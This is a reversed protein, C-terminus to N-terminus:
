CPAGGAARRLPASWPACAALEVGVGDGGVEAADPTRVGDPASAPECPATCSRRPRRPARPRPRRGRRAPPAALLPLAVVELLELPRGVLQGEEGVADVEAREVVEGVAARAPRPMLGAWRRRGACGPARRRRGARRGCADLDDHAAAGAADALGRGRGREASRAASRPRSTTTSVMSGARRSACDIPSVSSSLSGRGTSPRRRRGAREGRHHEVHLPREVLDDLGVGVGLAGGRDERVGEVLRQRAREGARLLVHRHLLEALQARRASASRGHSRMTTSVGGDRDASSKRSAGRRSPDNRSPRKMRRSAAGASPRRGRRAELHEDAPKPINVPTSVCPSRRGPARRRASRRRRRDVRHEAPEALPGLVGVRQQLGGVRREEHHGRGLAVRQALRGVEDFPELGLRHRQGPQHEVPHLGGAHGVEVRRRRGRRRRPELRPARDETVAASSRM